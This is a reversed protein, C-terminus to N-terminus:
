GKRVTQYNNLKKNFLSISFLAHMKICMQKLLIFSELLRENGKGLSLEREWTGHGIIEEKKQPKRRVMPIAHIGLGM